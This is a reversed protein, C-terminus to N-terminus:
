ITMGEFPLSPVYCSCISIDLTDHQFVSNSKRRMEGAPAFYIAATSVKPLVTLGAM